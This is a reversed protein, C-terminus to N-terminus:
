PYGYMFGDSAVSFNFMEHPPEGRRGYGMVPDATLMEGNFRDFNEVRALLYNKM